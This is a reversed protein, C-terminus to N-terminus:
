PTSAGLWRATSSSSSASGQHPIKGSNAIKRLENEVLIRSRGGKPLMDEESKVRPGRLLQALPMPVVPKPWKFQKCLRHRCFALLYTRPRHQPLGHEQTDMLAKEVRYGAKELVALIRDLVPKFKKWTMLTPACEFLALAPRREVVYSLSYAWLEGREDDMGTRPGSSAWTVCPVGAVYVDVRPAKANNREKIDGYRIEIDKYLCESLKVCHPDTESTFRHRVKFGLNLLALRPSELGGFDTGLTITCDPENRRARKNAPQCQTSQSASPDRSM